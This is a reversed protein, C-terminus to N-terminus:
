GYFIEQGPLCYLSMLSLLEECTCLELTVPERVLDAHWPLVSAQALLSRESAQAQLNLVLAQAWLILAMEQEQVGSQGLAPARAQLRLVQVRGQVPEGVQLELDTRPIKGPHRRLKACEM